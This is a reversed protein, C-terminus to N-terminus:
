TFQGWLPSHVWIAAGVVYVGAIGVLWRAVPMSGGRYVRLVAGLGLNFLCQSSLPTLFWFGSSPCPPRAIPCIVAVLWLRGCAPAGGCRSLRWCGAARGSSAAM